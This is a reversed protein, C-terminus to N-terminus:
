NPKSQNSADPTTNLELEATRRQWAGYSDETVESLILKDPTIATIQGYNQGLYNGVHVTYTHGGAEVFASVQGGRKISGVYRLSELSFNELIEKPRDPNPANIGSQQNVRLRKSDFINLGNIVPDIYEPSKSITPIQPQRVKNKAEARANDMWQQLDGEALSCATLLFIIALFRLINKKM